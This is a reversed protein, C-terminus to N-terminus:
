KINKYKLLKGTPIYVYIYHLVTIKNIHSVSKRGGKTVTVHTGWPYHVRLHSLSFSIFLVIWTSNSGEGTFSLHQSKKLKLTEARDCFHIQKNLSHMRGKRRDGLATINKVNESAQFLVKRADQSLTLKKVWCSGVILSVSVPIGRLATM